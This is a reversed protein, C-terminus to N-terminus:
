FRVERFVACCLLFTSSIFLCIAIQFIMLVNIIECFSKLVDDGFLDVNCNSNTYNRSM